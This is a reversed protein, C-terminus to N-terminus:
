HANKISRFMNVLLDYLYESNEDELLPHRNFMIQNVVVGNKVFFVHPLTVRKLNEDFDPSGPSQNTVDVPLYDHLKDLIRVYNENFESRDFDIYYYYHIYMGENEAAELLVPFLVRCWPCQPRGFFFVGTGSDILETLEDFEIFVVRNVEPIYMVRHRPNGDADFVYNLAEYREKFRLADEANSRDYYIIDNGGILANLILLPLAILVIGFVAILIVMFVRTKM